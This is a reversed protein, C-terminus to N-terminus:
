VRGLLRWWLFDLPALILFTAAALLLLVRVISRPPEKALGLAILLPPAQYPLLMTSFGLVQTMLVTEVPLGTQEALQGALPTLVAPVGSITAVMGTLMALLSLSLFNVFDRGPAMPLVDAVLDALLGGLGAQSVVAGLGLVAAVMLLMPLDASDRFAKADVFGLGPLLMLVAAALGVWGANVGHLSDTMWLALTACLLVSLRLEAGSLRAPPAPEPPLAPTEAPFIRLILVVLLACRLVGLVPFHLALYEAYGFHIGLIGDAAGSLVMNALNAPLIAYGPVNAALAVTVAVGSRGRSGPELGLRDALAMAIPVLIMARGLSSPMLFGLVMGMAMLGGILMPYSRSLHPAVWGALRQGLGTAQIAAGIVFGSVILWIAASSFGSFVLEPAALGPVLLAAFFALATVFPPILATAWLGLTMMVVALIRAQVPDLGAPPRMVLAAAGLALAAVVIKKGRAM